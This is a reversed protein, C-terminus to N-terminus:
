REVAVVTGMEPAIERIYSLRENYRTILIYSEQGLINGSDVQIFKTLNDRDFGLNRLNNYSGHPGLNYYYATMKWRDDNNLRPWDRDVYNRRLYKMYKISVTLNYHVDYKARDFSMNLQEAAIATVQAPGVAGANSTANDKFDSEASVISWLVDEPFKENWAANKIAQEIYRDTPYPSTKRHSSKRSPLLCIYKKKLNNKYYSRKKKSINGALKINKKQINKAATHVNVTTRESSPNKPPDKSAIGTKANKALERLVLEEDSINVSYRNDYLLLANQLNLKQLGHVIILISLILIFAIVFIDRLAMFINEDHEEPMDEFIKWAAKEM